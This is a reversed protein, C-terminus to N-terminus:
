GVPSGVNRDDSPRTGDGALHEGFFSEIRRWADATADPDPGMGLVRELVPKLLRPGPTEADMFGHGAGPYEKVDHPVDLRTLAADIKAAANGLSRDAGGFSGIIPCAGRLAADLDRPLQGYNVSSADFGRKATLLAFGGGMCFGIVGISGTCDPRAALLLRAAEIDAFPRGTQAMLARFTATLCKRAGGATFLDPMLVLYGASALRELQARMEGTVGFAEHVMVVAPWPGEGRPVALVGRLGPSAGADDTAIAVDTVDIGIRSM